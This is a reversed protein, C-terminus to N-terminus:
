NLTGDATGNDGATRGHVHSASRSRLLASCWIGSITMDLKWCSFVLQVYSNHKQQHIGPITSTIRDLHPLTRGLLSSRERSHRFRLVIKPTSVFTDSKLTQIWNLQQVFRYPAKLRHEVVGWTTNQNRYFYDLWDRGTVVRMVILIGTWLTHM